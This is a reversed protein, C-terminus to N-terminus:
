PYLQNSEGPRCTSTDKPLVSFGLSSRIHIADTYSSIYTAKSFLTLYFARFIFITPFINMGKSIKMGKLINTGELKILLILAVTYFYETM